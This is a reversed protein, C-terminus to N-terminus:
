WPQGYLSALRKRDSDHWQRTWQDFAFTATSEATKEEIVRAALDAALIGSMLAKLVGHASAPDMVSGADGVIFYGPGACASVIRWTVDAGRIRGAPPLDRLVEPVSPAAPHFHLSTWGYYSPALRAVWTWGGESGTFVPGDGGDGCEGRHYGYTAVLRPSNRIMPVGTRTQLWHRRGSADITFRAIVDLEPCRVGAVRSNILIPTMARCPQLVIVGAAAAKRLLILDLDAGPAQYGRWSGREDRGFEEFRRDAGRAVWQGAHRLFGAATVEQEVELQCFLSEVGPHLTEGPRTRPFRRAEILAVRLGCRAAWIAAACGAPGGGVVAVDFTTRCADIGSM